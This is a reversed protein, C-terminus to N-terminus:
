IMDEPKPVFRIADITRNYYAPSGDPLTATLVNLEWQTKVEHYLTARRTKCLRLIEFTFCQKGHAVIDSAVHNSSSIYNKWDSQKRVTKRRKKGKVKVKRTTHLFKRGIYQQGTIDNTILYVFGEYDDPDFGHPTTWHGIDM